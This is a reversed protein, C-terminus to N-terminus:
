NEDLLERLAPPLDELDTLEASSPSGCQAVIIVMLSLAQRNVILAKIEEASLGAERLARYLILATEPVIVKEM